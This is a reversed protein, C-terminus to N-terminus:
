QNGDRRTGFTSRSSQRTGSSDTAPAAAIAEDEAKRKEGKSEKETAAAKSGKQKAAEEKEMKKAAAVTKKEAAEKAKAEKKEKREGEKKKAADKKEASTAESKAVGKETDSEEEESDSEAVLVETSQGHEIEMLTRKLTDMTLLDEDEKTKTLAFVGEVDTGKSYTRATVRSDKAWASGRARAGELKEQDSRNGLLLYQQVGGPRFSSGSWRNPPLGLMIAAAQAVATLDQRRLKKIGKRPSRTTADQAMFEKIKEEKSQVLDSKFFARTYADDAKTGPINSFIDVHFGVLKDENGSRGILLWYPEPTAMEGRRCTKSSPPSFRLGLVVVGQRQGDKDHALEWFDSAANYLREVGDSGLVLLAIHERKLGHDEGIGEVACVACPRLTSDFMLGTSSLLIRQDMEEASAFGDDPVPLDGGLLAHLANQLLWNWGLKSRTRRLRLAEKAEEPSRRAAKIADKVNAIQFVSSNRPSPVQIRFAFQLASMQAQVAEERIGKVDCLWVVYMSMITAADSSGYEELFFDGSGKTTLYQRFVAAASHYRSSVARTVLNANLHLSLREKEAVTFLVAAGTIVAEIGRDRESSDASPPRSSGKDEERGGGRSAFRARRSDTKPVAASSTQDTVTAGSMTSSESERTPGESRSERETAGITPASKISKRFFADRKQVLEKDLASGSQALLPSRPTLGAVNFRNM